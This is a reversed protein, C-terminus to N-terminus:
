TNYVKRRAYKKGNLLPYVRLFRDLCELEDTLILMMDCKKLAICTRTRKSSTLRTGRKNEM